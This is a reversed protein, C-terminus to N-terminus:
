HQKIHYIIFSVKKKKEKMLIRSKSTSCFWACSSVRGEHSSQELKANEEPRRGEGRDRKVAESKDFACLTDSLM